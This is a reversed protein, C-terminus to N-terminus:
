RRFVSTELEAYLSCGLGEAHQSSCHPIIVATDDNELKGPWELYLLEEIKDNLLTIKFYILIHKQVRNLFFINSFGINKEKCLTIKEGSHIKILKSNGTGLCSFNTRTNSEERSAPYEAKEPM